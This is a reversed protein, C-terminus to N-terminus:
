TTASASRTGTSWASSAGCGAMTPRSSAPETPAGGVGPAETTIVGEHLQAPGQPRRRPSLLNAERMLRLLRKRSVRVDKQVRLRAWVKRHGEGVFPSAALDDRILLLLEDDTLTTKPGRKQAPISPRGPDKGKSWAYYSSRSVGFARCTRKIGYTRGTDPSTLGSM